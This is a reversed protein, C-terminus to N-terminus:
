SDVESSINVIHNWGAIGVDPESGHNTNIIVEVVMLRLKRCMDRVLRSSGQM